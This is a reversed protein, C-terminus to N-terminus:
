LNLFPLPRPLPICILPHAKPLSLGPKEEMNVKGGDGLIKWEFCQILAALTTPVFISALSAGPCVRRGAGFTLLEFNEAKLKLESRGEENVFREPKFEMADDWHKPDRGISWLNVLVSTKEPILYGNIKCEKSTQRAILPGTPHLRLTEKVISEMYPLKSIDSEEVLRSKGVVSDIEKRAKEMVEPHNMLEGLGWTVAHSSTDTGAGFMNMIVAKINERTLRIESSQDEYTDLLVDVLDKHAEYQDSAEKKRRRRDEEHEKIIREVIVDYRSMASKLIKRFGQLDLKQFVWGMDGLNFKGSLETLEKVVEVLERGESRVDDSCRKGFAMRSINNYALMGIEEGVNVDEGLNGKKVINDVFVRLEQARVPSHHQIIPGGLLETMCLKRMFKWYPGYPATAIDSRGYTAYKLNIKEPRDLFSSENTRLCEKAMESSSVLVCSRPGFSLHLLPGYRASIRHFAQHPLPGLLHLHGIIPLAPPSPPLGAKTKKQFSRLLLLLTFALFLSIPLLTGSYDGVDGM